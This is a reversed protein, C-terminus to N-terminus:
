KESRKTAFHKFRALVKVIIIKIILLVRAPHLRIARLRTLHKKLLLRSDSAELFVPTAFGITKGVSSRKDPIELM